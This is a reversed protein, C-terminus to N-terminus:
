LKMVAGRDQCLQRGLLWGFSNPEGDEDQCSAKGDGEVARCLFAECVRVRVRTCVCVCVCVQLMERWLAQSADAMPRDGHQTVLM